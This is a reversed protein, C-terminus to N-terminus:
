PVEGHRAKKAREKETGSATSESEAVRKRSRSITEMGTPDGEGRFQAEFADAKRRREADVQEAEMRRTRINEEELAQM